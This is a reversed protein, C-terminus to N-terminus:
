NHIRSVLQELRAVQEALETVQPDSTGYRLRLDALLRKLLALGGSTDGMLVYCTAEQRRCQFVEDTHPGRMATLDQVLASYLPAAVRYENNEFRIEALRLRAEIVADDHPGLVRTAVSVVPVLAAVAQEYRSDDALAGALNMARDIDGRSFGASGGDPLTPPTTSSATSASARWRDGSISGMADAYMRTPGRPETVEQFPVLDRVHPLLAAHVADADAPRDAPNKALMGMILEGFDDSVEPREQTISPAYVHIQNDWVSYETAGEVVRQGTLLEHLVLGLSYLDTQPVVTLGKIQEPAMYHPTGLMDGIRTLRSVEPDLFMALGFDLVKLTGDACLMLNSPKLDRHFIGRQHAASLVAATQAGISAVWGIPLPGYRKSLVDLTVGDVYEMVIYPRDEDDDAIDVDYVTPTGPHNLKAMIRSEHVFRKALEKKSVAGGPFHMLKVAVKRDLRNDYGEYVEGMGGRGLEATLEYRGGIVHQVTDM